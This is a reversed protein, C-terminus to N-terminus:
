AGVAQMKAEEVLLYFGFLPSLVLAIVAFLGAWKGFALATLRYVFWSQAAALILTPLRVVFHNESGFLHVAAAILWMIAPPHDQYSLALSRAMVVDYTEDISLGMVSVFGAHAGAAVAIILVASRDLPDFPLKKLAAFFYSSFRWLHAASKRDAHEGAALSPVLLASLSASVSSMWSM